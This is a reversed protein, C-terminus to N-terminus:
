CLERLQRVLFYSEWSVLVSYGANADTTACVQSPILAKVARVIRDRDAVQFTHDAEYFSVADSMVVTKTNAGEDTNM